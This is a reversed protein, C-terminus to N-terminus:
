AVSEIPTNPNVTRATQCLQRLYVLAIPMLWPVTNNASGGGSSILLELSVM